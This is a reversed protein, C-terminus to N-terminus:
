IASADVIPAYPVCLEKALLSGFGIRKDGMEMENSVLINFAEGPLGIEEVVIKALGAIYATLELSDNSIKEADLHKMFPERMLQLKKKFESIDMEIVSIEINEIASLIWLRIPILVPSTQAVMEEWLDRDTMM